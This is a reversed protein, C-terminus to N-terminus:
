DCFICENKQQARTCESWHAPLNKFQLFNKICFTEAPNTSNEDAIENSDHAFHLTAVLVCAYLLISKTKVFQCKLHFIFQLKLKKAIDRKKHVVM